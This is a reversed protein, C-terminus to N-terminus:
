QSTYNKKPDIYYVGGGFYEILEDPTPNELTRDEKKYRKKYGKLANAKAEAKTEGLAYIEYYTSIICLYM